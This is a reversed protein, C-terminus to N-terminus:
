VHTACKALKTASQEVHELANTQGDLFKNRAALGFIWLFNLPDVTEWDDAIIIAGWDGTAVFNRTSFGPWIIRELRNRPM